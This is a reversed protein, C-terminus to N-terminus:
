CVTCDTDIFIIIMQPDAQAPSFAAAPLMAGTLVVIAAFAASRLTRRLILMIM